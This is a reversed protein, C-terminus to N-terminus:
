KAHISLEAVQGQISSTTLPLLLRYCANMLHPFQREFDDSASRCTQALNSGSVPRHALPRKPRCGAVGWIEVDESWAGM